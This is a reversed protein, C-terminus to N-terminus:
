PRRSRGSCSSRGRRSRSRRMRSGAASRRWSSRCSRCTSGRRGVRRPRVEQAPLLAQDVEEPVVLEDAPLGARAVLERRRVRELGALERHHEVALPADREDLVLVGLELVGGRRHGDGVPVGSSYPAPATLPVIMPMGFPPLCRSWAHSRTLYRVVFSWASAFNEFPILFTGDVTLEDVDCSSIGSLFKAVNRFIKALLFECVVGIVGIPRSWRVVNVFKM